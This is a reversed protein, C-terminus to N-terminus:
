RGSGLRGGGDNDFTFPQIAVQTIVVVVRGAMQGLLEADGIHDVRCRRSGLLPDTRDLIEAVGIAKQAGRLVPQLLHGIPLRM